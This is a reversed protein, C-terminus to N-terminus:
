SQGVRGPRGIKQERSGLRDSGVWALIGDQPACYNRSLPSRPVNGAIIAPSRQGGEPRVWMEVTFAERPIEALAESRLALRQQSGSFYLVPLGGGHPSGPEADWSTDGNGSPTSAQLTRKLRHGHPNGQETPGKRKPLQLQSQAWGKRQTKPVRKQSTHVLTDAKPLDEPSASYTSFRDGKPSQARGIPVNQVWSLKPMRNLAVRRADPQSGEAQLFAQIRGAYPRLYDGPRSPYVGLHHGPSFARPRQGQSGLWCRDGEELGGSSYRRQALTGKRTAHPQSATTSLIWVALFLMRLSHRM